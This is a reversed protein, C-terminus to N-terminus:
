PTPQCAGSCPLPGLVPPHLLSPLGGVVAVGMALLAIAVVGVILWFMIAVAGSLIKAGTRRLSGIGGAM